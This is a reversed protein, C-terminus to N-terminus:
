DGAMESKRAVSSKRRVVENRSVKFRQLWVKKM